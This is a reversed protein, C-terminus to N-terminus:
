DEHKLEEEPKKGMDNTDNADSDHSTVKVTSAYKLENNCEIHIAPNHSITNGNYFIRRKKMRDTLSM